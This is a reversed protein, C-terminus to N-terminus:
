SRKFKVRDPGGGGTKTELKFYWDGTVSLKTLRKYILDKIGNVVQSSGLAGPRYILNFM